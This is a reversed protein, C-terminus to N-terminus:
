TRFRNKKQTCAYLHTPPIDRTKPSCTMGGCRRQNHSRFHKRGAILSFVSFFVSVVSKKSFLGLCQKDCPETTFNLSVTLGEILKGRHVGVPQVTVTYNKDKQTPLKVRQFQGFFFIRACNLNVTVTFVCSLPRFFWFCCTRLRAPVGLPSPSLFM